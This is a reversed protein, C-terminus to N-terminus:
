SRTEEMWQQVDRWAYRPMRVSLWLVRPGTGRERWRCLTAPSIRLLAAVEAGTMLEHVSM